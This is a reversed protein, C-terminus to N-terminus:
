QIDLVRDAGGLGNRVDVGDMSRGGDEDMCAILDLSSM